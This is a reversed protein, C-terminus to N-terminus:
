SLEKFILKYNSHVQFSLFGDCRDGHLSYWVWVWGAPHSSDTVWVKCSSLIDEVLRKYVWADGKLRQRRISVVDPKQLQCLELEFQMTVKGFDSLTQCKLTYSYFVLLWNTPSSHINQIICSIELGRPPWPSFSGNNWM